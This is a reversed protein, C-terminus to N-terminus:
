LAIHANRIPAKSGVNARSVLRTEVGDANSRRLYKGVGDLDNVKTAKGISALCNSKRELAFAISPQCKNAAVVTLPGKDGDVMVGRYSVRAVMGGAGMAEVQCYEKKSGLQKVLKRYQSNHLFVTDPKGGETAAKSQGDILAEEVLQASGDHYTGWLRGDTSRDVGFFSEGASPDTAPYWAAWGTIAVKTGADQGDGDIHIYDSAAAATIATDWQASTATLVGTRRNVKAIVESGARLAGGETGSLKVTMGPEFNSAENINALTVTQATITSGSSVQGISGTGARPIESELSDALSNYASDVEKKMARVFAGKENMTAEATEGDIHALSHNNSRTLLFDEWKSDTVNNQATAFTHSRGQTNAYLLPIPMNRGYFDEKKPLWGLMPRDEYTLVEVMEPKHLQKMAPDFSTLTAM